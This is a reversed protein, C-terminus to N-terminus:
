AARDEACPCPAYRLGLETDVAHSTRTSADAVAEWSGYKAHLQDATPGLPDGYKAENREELRLVAEPTMGARTIEKADNRLDVLRRAIEEPTRGAARLACREHDMAGILDLYRRRVTRAARRERPSEARIRCVVPEPSACPGTAPPATSPPAAVVARGCVGACQAPVAAFASPVATAALVSLLVATRRLLGPIRSSASM